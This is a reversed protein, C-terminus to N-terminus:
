EYRLAQIPNLGAAKKAPYYGFILGICFSVGFSLVVSSVTVVTSLVGSLTIGYSILVGLVIGAVGGFVTLAISEALFQMTIDSNKAGIAKRLGIERTRERVSTLMMNMIGIGGVLLSIAAVSSLLITFIQTVSNATAALDAQSFVTFDIDAESKINHTGMLITKIEDQLTSMTDASDASVAITSIHDSNSIYQKTTNLPIFVRDDLNAVGSGGKSEAVGIVTFYSGKIKIKSGVPDSGDPFLDDKVTAGLVVVRARTASDSDTLFRGDAITINGVTEYAPEVGYVTTNTNNSGNILQTRANLISSVALAHTAQERIAKTDKETLTNVTGRGQSVPPGGKQQAGPLVALVNTGLSSIKSAVQAQAGNGISLMAIVSSIGIIIGLMTLSTRVLNATLAYRTEIILDKYRM